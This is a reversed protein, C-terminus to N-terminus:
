SIRPAGLIDCGLFHRRTMRAADLVAFSGACPDGIVDGKSTTAAIIASLLGLPKQHAHVRGVIKEPWVDPICPSRRWTAKAIIPPKQLVGLYEGKRRSRHGMGIRGKDWTIMDVTQLLTGGNDDIFYRQAFGNCVIFKDAWMMVYGSPKLVRAIERGFACITDATMSPLNARAKQRNGENGLALHDLVERYQPDFFVLPTFNDPTTKLLKLGDTKHRRNLSYRPKRRARRM